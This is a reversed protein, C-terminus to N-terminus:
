HCCPFVYHLFKFIAHSAHQINDIRINKDFFNNKYGGLANSDFTNDTRYQAQLIFRLAMLIHKKYVQMRTKDQCQQAVRYADILSETITATVAASGTHSFSGLLDIETTETTIQQTLIRDNMTFVFKAYKMDNLVFFLETYVSSMWPLMKIGDKNQNFLRRYYPFVKEVIRINEDNPYCKNMHLLANLAIGPFFFEAEHPLNLKSTIFPLLRNHEKDYSSLIFSRLPNMKDQHFGSSVLALLLCGSLGIDTVGNVELYGSDHHPSFNKIINNIARKTCKLTLQDQYFKALKTLIWTSALQRLLAEQTNSHHWKKENAIYLYAKKHIFNKLASYSLFLSSKLSKDTVESQLIIPNNRYLDYLGYKNNKTLVDERFEITKYKSLTAKKSQVLDRKLGCKQALKILTEEFSYGYNIPVSNKFIAIKDQYRLSIADVGLIIKEELDNSIIKEDFLITMEVHIKHSSPKPKALNIAKITSLIVSEELTKGQKHGCALINDNEYLSVFVIVNKVDIPEKIAQVKPPKSEHLFSNLMTRCLSLLYERDQYTLFLGKRQTAIGALIAFDIKQNIALDPYTSLKNMIM